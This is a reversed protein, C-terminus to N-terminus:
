DREALSSSSSHVFSNKGEKGKGSNPISQSDAAPSFLYLNFHPFDVKSTRRGQQLYRQSFYVREHYVFGDSRFTFFTKM